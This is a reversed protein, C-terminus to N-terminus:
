HARAGQLCRGMPAMHYREAFVTGNITGFGTVVERPVYEIAFLSVLKIM